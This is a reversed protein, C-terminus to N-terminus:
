QIVKDDDSSQLLLKLKSMCSLFHCDYKTSHPRCCKAWPWGFILICGVDLINTSYVACNCLFLQMINLVRYTIFIHIRKNLRILFTWIVVPPARKFGPDKAEACTQCGFSAHDAPSWSCLSGPSVSQSCAQTKGKSGTPKLLGGREWKYLPYFLLPKHPKFM